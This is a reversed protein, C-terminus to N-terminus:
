ACEGGYRRRGSDIPRAWADRPLACFVIFVIRELWRWFGIADLLPNLAATVPCYHTNKAGSHHRAHHRPTQILRLDHLMSILPGNEKRTRHMWQHILIANSGVVVFLWVEWTLRGLTWAVAVILAGVLLLDWSSQWYNRLMFDCAHRHHRINPAIYLPGLVPTDARGYSDTAWDVVGAIFDLLLIVLTARLLSLTVIIVDLGQVTALM